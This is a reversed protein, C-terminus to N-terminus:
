NVFGVVISIALVWDAGHSEDNEKRDTRTDRVKVPICGNTLPPGCLKNGLFSSEHFSQIQTGTPVKGILNNYSVNFSSLFNLRSLSVPLEESLKNVSLDLSELSKMEGIKDPIKGTLQNRSLNLSKLKQLAMLESPIQGSINNSSLDLLMVLWLIIKYTDERGKMVLSDSVISPKIDLSFSFIVESNTKKGSLVSLNNFCRPINGSLNNHALDLIQAHSLYCLQHPIYGYFHNSRLNLIRLITLKTGIWTPISGVLENRGLQLIKLNSLNMLSSPLIGSIKNRQMNLLQLSPMYGMTRPIEGSISNNQLNLLVLSPWKDWCEPIVGSFHNNELNLTRIDKTGNSCLLPHLSGRFENSSLDVVKLPVSLNNNRLKLSYLSSWKDWCDPIVGSLHNDGLDLYGTMNVDNSCVLNHSSGDFFNDSLALIVPSSSGNSLSPLKGWFNNYSLDLVELTPPIDLLNGQIHNQSLSLVQLRPLKLFSCNYLSPPIAGTLNNGPVALRRLNTLRQFVDLFSGGLQCDGMSLTDLLTLNSIFPPIGGVVINGHLILTKLMSLSGIEDPIKGVLNNYGLHLVQLDSCNMITAPINGTFSNNSLRLERLRFLRGIEPHIEGSFSNNQLRIVRLFSLNGVSPSLWGILGSSSLDLITVRHHRSGCTVGQWQCFNTISHNWSAMVGQPDDKIMSKIARLALHDFRTHFLAVFPMLVAFILPRIFYFFWKASM